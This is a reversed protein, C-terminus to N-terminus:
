AFCLSQHSLVLAASAPPGTILGNSGATLAIVGVVLSSVIVTFFPIELSRVALVLQYFSMKTVLGGTGVATYCRQGGTTPTADGVM